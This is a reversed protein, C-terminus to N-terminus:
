EGSMESVTAAVPTEDIVIRLGAWSETALNALDRLVDPHPLRPSDSLHGLVHAALVHGLRLSFEATRGDLRGALYGAAFADGAGIPEVIDVHPTPVFTVTDGRFETAGVDADKVVLTPVGSFIERIDAATRTGWLAAAEDRGTIVIDARSALAAIRPAAATAPWLQPRFNVDFSVTAPGSRELLHEVLADCSASLAPTIGTLHILRRDPLRLHDADTPNMATAASGARYYYVARAAGPHDTPGTIRDKFYIGTRRTPDTIVHPTEVGRSRLTALIRSGFPDAGLRSFWEVRRGLHALAAAVNSEAGAAFMETRDCAALDGAIPALAIMTEGVCLVEPVNSVPADATDMAKGEGTEARAHRWM